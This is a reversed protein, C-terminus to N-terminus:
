LWRRVNVGRRAKIFDRFAKEHTSSSNMYEEKNFFGIPHCPSRLWFIVGSGDCQWWTGQYFKVFYLTSGVGAVLVTGDTPAGWMPKVDIM